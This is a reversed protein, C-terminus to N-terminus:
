PKPGKLIQIACDAHSAQLGGRWMGNKIHVFHGPIDDMDTDDDLAVFATVDSSVWAKIEKGRQAAIWITGGESKREMHITRGIPRREIGQLRFHEMLAEWRPGDCRWTSSVVIEAGTAKLIRNLEFVPGKAFPNFHHEGITEQRNVTEGTVLVGDIDLFVVKM